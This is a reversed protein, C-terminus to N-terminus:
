HSQVYFIVDDTFVLTMSSHCSIIWHIINNKPSRLYFGQLAIIAINSTLLIFISLSHVGVWELLWRYNWVDVLLYFTNFTFGACASTVLTYSVTYLSKNLPIGSISTFFLTLFHHRQSYRVRSLGWTIDNAVPLICKLCMYNSKKKKKKPFSPKTGPGLCELTVVQVM